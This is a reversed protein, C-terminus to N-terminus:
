VVAARKELGQLNALVPTGTGTGRGGMESMTGDKADILAHIVSPRKRKQPNASAIGSTAVATRACASEASLQHSLSMGTCVSICRPGDMSSWAFRAFSRVFLSLISQFTHM